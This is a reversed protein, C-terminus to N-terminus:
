NSKAIKKEKKLLLYCIIGATFIVIEEGLTDFARYDAIITTVINPTNADKISNKIYYSSAIPSSVFSSDRNSFSKIDNKLPLGTSAIILFVGFFLLLVYKFYKM